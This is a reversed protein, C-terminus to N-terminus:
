SIRYNSAGLDNVRIDINIDGCIIVKYKPKSRQVRFLLIQLKQLFVEISGSPSRFIAIVVIKIKYISVVLRLSLNVCCIQM